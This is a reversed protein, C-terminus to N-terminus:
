KCWKSIQTPSKRLKLKGPKTKRWCQCLEWSPSRMRPRASSHREKEGLPRGPPGLKKVRPSSGGGRPLTALGGDAVTGLLTKQKPSGLSGRAGGARCITAAGHREGCSVEGEGTWGPRHGMGGSFKENGGVRGTAATRGRLGPAAEEARQAVEQRQRARGGLRETREQGEPVGRGASLQPETLAHGPKRRLGM